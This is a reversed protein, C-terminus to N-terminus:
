RGGKRRRPWIGQGIFVLGMLVVPLLMAVMSVTFFLLIHLFLM